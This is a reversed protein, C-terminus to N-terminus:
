LALRTGAAATIGARTAHMLIAATLVSTTASCRGAPRDVRQTRVPGPQRKTEGPQRPHRESPARQRVLSGVKFFDSHEFCAQEGSYMLMSYDFLVRPGTQTPKLRGGYHHIPATPPM